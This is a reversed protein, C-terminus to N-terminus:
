EYGNKFNVYIDINLHIEYNIILAIKKKNLIDIFLFKQIVM